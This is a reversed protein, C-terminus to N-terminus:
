PFGYSSFERIRRNQDRSWAELHLSQLVNRKYFEPKPNSCCRGERGDVDYVMHGDRVGEMWDTENM